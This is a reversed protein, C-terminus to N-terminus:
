AQRPDEFVAADSHSLFAVHKGRQTDRVDVRVEPPSSDYIEQVAGLFEDWTLEKLDGKSVADLIARANM